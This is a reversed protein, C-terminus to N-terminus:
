YGQRRKCLAKGLSEAARGALRLASVVKKLFLSTADDLQEPRMTLETIPKIPCTM